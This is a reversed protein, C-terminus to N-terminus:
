MGDEGDCNLIPVHPIIAFLMDLHSLKMKNIQSYTITVLLPLAVRENGTRIGVEPYYM